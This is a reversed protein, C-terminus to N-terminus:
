HAIARVIVIAIACYCSTFGTIIDCISLSATATLTQDTVAAVAEGM